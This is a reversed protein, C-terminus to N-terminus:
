RNQDDKHRNFERPYDNAWFSMMTKRDKNNMIAPDDYFSDNPVHTTSVEEFIAGTESRFAHPRNREVVIIDGPSYEREGDGLDLIFKGYLVQFTEEKQKHYHMPHRQGPFIIVIKKCYERNICNIISAGYERFRSLGYHHSFEFNLMHPLHIRNDELMTLIRQLHESIEKQFNVISVDSKLVPAGAKLDKTLTMKSYKSLDCATLHGELNPLALALDEVRLQEGAKMDRRLYCARRLGHLDALEKRGPVRPGSFGGCMERAKLIADLWTKFQQPNSSYANVAHKGTPLGVHREFVRAGKAVALMACTTNAPDEHGSYGLLTGPFNERLYDLQNLAANAPAAPYEGICHMMAFEKQRHKFFMFMKAVDDASAGATSFVVPLDCRVVKELLPWDCASCSAVKLIDFGEEVVRDVSVEDFPTCALLFRCERATERLRAFQSRDLRTEQFRKIYKFSFDNRYAPHIFTDLDRYQFKLAFKFPYGRCVDAFARIIAHGHEVDGMHNNAMELIVLDSLVNKENM